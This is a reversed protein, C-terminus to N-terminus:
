SSTSPKVPARKMMSPLFCDGNLRQLVTNDIEAFAKRYAQHKLAALEEATILALDVGAQMYGETGLQMVPTVDLGDAYRSFYDELRENLRAQYLAKM